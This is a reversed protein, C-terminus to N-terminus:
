EAEHVSKVRLTYGPNELHAKLKADHVADSHNAGMGTYILEAKRRDNVMVFTVRRAVKSM